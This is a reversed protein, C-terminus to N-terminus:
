GQECGSQAQHSCLGDMAEQALRVLKEDSYGLWGPSTTYAPYGERRLTEKRETRSEYQERFMDTVRDRNLATSIYRYDILGALEEPDM